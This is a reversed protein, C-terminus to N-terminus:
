LLVIAEVSDGDKLDLRARLNNRSIIEVVDSHHSRLPMVVACDVGQVKAKFCRAGGFTRGGSEFPEIAMGEAQRLVELKTLEEGPIRMNLTGEFPEYDLLRRFQEKYGKQRMYFAGEGLGSVVVGSLSLEKAQDFILKFEAFERRLIDIGKASLRVSERRSVINRMILGERTLDLLRKSAAQQSIGLALGLEKSSFSVTERVGGLLAIHKLAAILNPKM